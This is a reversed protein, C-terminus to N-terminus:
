SPDKSEYPVREILGEHGHKRLEEEFGDWEETDPYTITREESRMFTGEGILQPPEEGKFEINKGETSSFAYSEIVTDSDAIFSLKEFGSDRFAGTGIYSIYGFEMTKLSKTNKFMHFGIIELDEPMRVMELSVAEAFAREGFSVVHRADVYKLYQLKRFFGDGLSYEGQPLFLYRVHMASNRGYSSLNSTTGIIYTIEDGIFVADSLDLVYYHRNGRSMIRLCNFDDNDIEGNVKVGYYNEDLTIWKGAPCGGYRERLDGAKEVEIILIEYPFYDVEEKDRDNLWLGLTVFIVLVIIGAIIIKKKM